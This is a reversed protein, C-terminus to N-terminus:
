NLATRSSLFRLVSVPRFPLVPSLVLLLKLVFLLKLVLLLKSMVECFIGVLFNILFIGSALMFLVVWIPGMTRNSEYLSDWDYDGFLAVRISSLLSSMMSEFLPVDHGFLIHGSVSFAVILIFYVFLLDLAAPISRSLAKFLKELKHTVAAFKFVKLWLVMGQLGAINQAQQAWFGLTQLQSPNLNNPDEILKSVTSYQYFQLYLLIFALILTFIDMMNWFDSCHHKLAKYLSKYERSEKYIESVEDWFLWAILVIMACLLGNQTRTTPESFGFGGGQVRVVRYSSFPKVLGTPMLEFVIRCVLFLDVNPNYFAFDVFVARTKLDIWGHRRLMAINEEAHSGNILDIVYGGGPYATFRAPYDVSSEGLQKYTQYHFHDYETCCRTITGNDDDPCNQDACSLKILPEEQNARTFAVGLKGEDIKELYPLFCHKQLTDDYQLFLRQMPSCESSVVRIQRIRVPGLMRNGYVYQSADNAWYGTSTAFFDPRLIKVVEEELFTWLDEIFNVDDYSASIVSKWLTTYENISASPRFAVQLITFILVFMLFKVLGRVWDWLEEEDVHNDGDGGEKADAEDEEGGGPTPEGEGLGGGDWGGAAAVAAAEKDKKAKMQAKKMAM